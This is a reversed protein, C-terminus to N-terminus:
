EDNKKILKENRESSDEDIKPLNTGLVVKGKGELHLGLTPEATSIRTAPRVVGVLPM